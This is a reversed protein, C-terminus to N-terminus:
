TAEHLTFHLKAHFLIFLYDANGNRLQPGEGNGVRGALRWCGSQRGGGGEREWVSMQLFVAVLM